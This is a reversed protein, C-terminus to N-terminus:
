CVVGYRHGHESVGGILHIRGAEPIPIYALLIISYPQSRRSGQRQFRWRHYLFLFQFFSFMTLFFLVLRLFIGARYLTLVATNEKELALFFVTHLFGFCRVADHFFFNLDDYNTLLRDEHRSVDPWDACEHQM